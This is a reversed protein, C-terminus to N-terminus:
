PRIDDGPIPLSNRIREWISPQEVPRSGPRYTDIAEQNTGSGQIITNSTGSIGEFFTDHVVTIIGWLSTIVFLAVIGWLMRTRGKKHKDSDSINTIWDVVGWLFLLFALALLVPIATNALDTLLFILGQLTTFETSPNM